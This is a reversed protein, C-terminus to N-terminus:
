GFLPLARLRRGVLFIEERLPDESVIDKYSKTKVLFINCDM